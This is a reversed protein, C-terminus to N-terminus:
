NKKVFIPFFRGKTVTYVNESPFSKIGGLACTLIRFEYKTLPETNSFYYKYQDASVFVEEYTNWNDTSKQLLFNTTKFFTKEPESWSITITADIIEIHEIQPPM